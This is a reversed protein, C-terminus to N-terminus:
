LLCKKVRRRLLSDGIFPFKEFWRRHVGRGAALSTLYRGRVSNWITPPPTNPYDDPDDDQQCIEERWDSWNM